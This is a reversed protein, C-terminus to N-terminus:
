VVSPYWYSKGEIFVLYIGLRGFGAQASKSIGFGLAVDRASLNQPPLVKRLVPQRVQM